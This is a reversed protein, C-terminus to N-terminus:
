LCTNDLLVAPSVTTRHYQEYLLALTSSAHSSPSTGANNARRTPPLTAPSYTSLHAAQVQGTRAASKQIRGSPQAPLEPVRVGGLCGHIIPECRPALDPAGFVGITTGTRHITGTAIRRASTIQITMGGRAAVCCAREGSDGHPLAVCAGTYGNKLFLSGRRRRTVHKPACGMPMLSLWLPLFNGCLALLLHRNGVFLRSPM